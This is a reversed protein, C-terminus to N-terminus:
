RSKIWNYDDIKEEVMKGNNKAQQARQCKETKLQPSVYQVRCIASWM